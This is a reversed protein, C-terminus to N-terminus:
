LGVNAYRMAKHSFQLNVERGLHAGPPMRVWSGEIISLAIHGDDSDFPTVGVCIPGATGACLTFFTFDRAM